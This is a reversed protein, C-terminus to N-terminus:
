EPVEGSCLIGGAPNSGAVWENPGLQETGQAIPAFWGQGQSRNGRDATDAGLPKELPLTTIKLSM